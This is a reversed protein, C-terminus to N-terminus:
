ISTKIELLYFSTVGLSEEWQEVRKICRLCCLVFSGMFIFVALFAALGNAVETAFLKVSTGIANTWFDAPAELPNQAIVEAHTPM